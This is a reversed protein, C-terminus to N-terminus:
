YLGKKGMKPPAPSVGLTKATAADGGVFAILIRTEGGREVRKGAYGGAADRVVRVITVKGHGDALKPASVVLVRLPPLHCLDGVPCPFLHSKLELQIDTARM